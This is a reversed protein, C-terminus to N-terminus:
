EETIHVTALMEITDPYISSKEALRFDAGVPKSSTPVTLFPFTPKRCGTEGGFDYFASASFHWSSDRRGDSRRRRSAFM